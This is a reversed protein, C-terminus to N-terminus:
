DWASAKMDKVQLIAIDQMSFKSALRPFEKLCANMVRAAIPIKLGETSDLVFSMDLLM